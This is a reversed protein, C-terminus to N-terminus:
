TSRAPPCGRVLRKHASKLASTHRGQRSTASTCAGVRALTFCLKKRLICVPAVCYLVTGYQNQLPPPTRRVPRSPTHTHAQVPQATSHKSPERRCLPRASARAVCAAVAQLANAEQQATRPQRRSRVDLPARGVGGQRTSGKTGGRSDSTPSQRKTGQGRARSCDQSGARVWTFSANSFRFSTCGEPPHGSAAPWPAGRSCRPPPPPFRPSGGAATNSRRCVNTRGRFAWSIQAAEKGATGKGGSQKGGSEKARPLAPFRSRRASSCDSARM